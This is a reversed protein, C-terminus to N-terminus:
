ILGTDEVIRYRYAEQKFKESVEEIHLCSSERVVLAALEEAAYTQETPNTSM